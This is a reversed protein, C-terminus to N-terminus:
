PPTAVPHTSCPSLGRVSGDCTRQPAIQLNTAWNPLSKSSEDGLLDILVQKNADKDTTHENPERKAIEYMM